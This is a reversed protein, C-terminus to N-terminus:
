RILVKREGEAGAGEDFRGARYGLKYRARPYCSRQAKTACCDLRFDRRLQDDDKITWPRRGMMEEGQARARGPSDAKKSQATEVSHRAKQM